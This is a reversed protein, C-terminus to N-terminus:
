AETGSANIVNKVADTDLIANLNSLATSLASAAADVGSDADVAARYTKLASYLTVEAAHIKAVVDKDACITKTGDCVDAQRYVNAATLATQASAEVATKSTTSCGPLILFGVIYLEALHKKITSM